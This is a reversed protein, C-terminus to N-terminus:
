NAANVQPTLEWFGADGQTLLVPVSPAPANVLNYKDRLAHVDATTMVGDGTTNAANVQPTLEWFGADGQTLLVPVSPAPANVLNIKDLVEGLRPVSRIDEYGPAAIDEWHLNAYRGAAALLGKDKLDDMMAQGTANLYDRLHLDYARDLGTIAMGVVGAWLPSNGAYTLAREPNVLVGGEVVGVIDPRLEPAYSDLMAAAWASGIAGGSYGFIATKQGPEVGTNASARAARLGDLTAAGYEPGAGFDANPGQIDSIVVTKGSLLAPTAYMVEPTYILDDVNATGTLFRSPNDEPNLTDYLSDYVLVEGSPNLPHLVSTVTASPRDLADTTRYLIQTMRVPTPVGAITVTLDRERLIDGPAAAALTAADPAAFFAQNEASTPLSPLASSGVAASSAPGPIIPAAPAGAGRRGQRGQRGGGLVLGEERGGVGGGERGGLRARRDPRGRRPLPDAGCRRRPPPPHDDTM